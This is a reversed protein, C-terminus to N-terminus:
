LDDNSNGIQTGLNQTCSVRTGIALDIYTPPGTTSTNKYLNMRMDSSPSPILDGAPTHQAVIRFSPKGANVREAFDDSNFKAVEQKTHAIWIANPDAEAKAQKTDIMVRKNMQRLLKADVHGVRAGRLFDKLNSNSDNKFRMNESLEGYENISRWIQQGKLAKPRTVAMHYIPTGGIAKLQWFDGTFLM